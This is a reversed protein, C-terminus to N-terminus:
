NWVKWRSSLMVLFSWIMGLLRSSNRYKCRLTWLRSLSPTPTTASQSRDPFPPLLSVTLSNLSQTM